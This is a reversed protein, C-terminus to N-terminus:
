RGARRRSGLLAAAVGAGLWAWPAGSRDGSGEAGPLSCSCSAEEGSSPAASNGSGVGAGTSGGGGSSSSGEAPPVDEAAVARVYDVELTGPGAEFPDIRIQTITGAWRPHEEARIGLEHFAEDDPLDFDIVKDEGMAPEDTTAFYLRARGTGGTRKARLAIAGRESASFTTVPSQAGPDDGEGGILLAKAAPDASLTAAGTATWGELKDTDWEWHTRSYVDSPLYVQLREGFTQSKNINNVEGNFDDQHYYSPIDKVWLRVDPSDALGISYAPATFTLTVRKTENPSLANMKLSFSTGLPQGHPPNEPNTNADNEQFVGGNKWDSEILYDTAVLYPEEIFVGVDVSSAPSGGKNVVQMTVSYKEGEFLDIVGASSHDAFIDEAGQAFAVFPYVDPQPKPAACNPGTAFGEAPSQKLRAETQPGYAGDEDIKDGPHNINWLQQFALVDTGRYDVAGAGVYDFHVVDSDGFWKFGHSQLASKWTNYEQVDIALGSEHNSSGPKAALQIGCKGAISWNYLLYQQAVTRLMSNLTLTTSPKSNLAAVFADRAPQELYPYVSAGIKLNGLSPVKVFSGPTICNAQAVIQDNLGKVSATSCGAAAAQAVTQAQIAEGIPEGDDVPEPGDVM